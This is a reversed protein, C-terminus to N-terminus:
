SVLELLRGRSGAPALALDVCGSAMRDVSDIVVALMETTDAEHVVSRVRPLMAVMPRLRTTFDHGLHKVLTAKPALLRDVSVTREEVGAELRRHHDERSRLTQDRRRTRAELEALRSDSQM